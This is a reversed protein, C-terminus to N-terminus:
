DLDLVSSYSIVGLPRGSAIANEIPQQKPLDDVDANMTARRYTWQRPEESAPSEIPELSSAPSEHKPEVIISSSPEPSRTLFHLLTATQSLALLGALAPWWRQPRVSARGAQFLLADRDLGVPDPTFRRLKKVLLDNM